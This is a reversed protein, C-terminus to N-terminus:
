KKWLEIKNILEYLKNRTSPINEDYYMSEPMYVKDAPHKFLWLHNHKRGKYKTIGILKGKFTFGKNGWGYSWQIINANTNVFEKEKNKDIEKIDCIYYETERKDRNYFKVIKEM